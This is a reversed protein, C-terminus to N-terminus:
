HRGEADNCLLSCQFAATHFFIENEMDYCIVSIELECMAMVIDKDPWFMRM